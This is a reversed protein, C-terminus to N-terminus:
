NLGSAGPCNETSLIRRYRHIQRIRRSRRRTMLRAAVENTMAAGTPAGMALRNAVTESTNVRAMIVVAGTAKRSEETGESVPPDARLIRVMIESLVARIVMPSGTVVTERDQDQRAMRGQLRIQESRGNATAVM